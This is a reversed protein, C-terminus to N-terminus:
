LRALTGRQFVRGTVTIYRGASYTEISLGAITRKTGPAEPATGWIHLGDGSPSIEIYSDPYRVIFDSAAADPQGDILCHDLDICGIGDGLVYGLGVGASSTNAKAFSSWTKADTSRAALGNIQLPKKTTKGNRVVPTWRVWRDRSILELPIPNSKAQRHAAVRHATSCYRADARRSVVSAGCWECERM